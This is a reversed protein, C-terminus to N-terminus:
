GVNREEFCCTRSAIRRLVGPSASTIGQCLWTPRDTRGRFPRWCEKTRRLSGYSPARAAPRDKRQRRRSRRRWPHLPRLWTGQRAARFQRDAIRLLRTAGLVRGVDRPTEVVLDRQLAVPDVA